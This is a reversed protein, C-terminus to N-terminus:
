VQADFVEALGEFLWHDAATGPPTFPARMSLCELVDVASGALVVAEAPPEGRHIAIESGVEIVAGVTPDTVRLEIAGRGTSGLSARFAPGLAAAYLLCAEMEAPDVAPELALPLVIDREHVWSDWLAHIAVLGISIHGPPAEALEEWAAEEEVATLADALARNTEVFQALTASPPTGQQAAVLEAPSAVPDFGHLYTTPEGALGSQISYTWFHNTSTLHLVVDRVSWGACRSGASWQDDDLGALTAALRSRQGTVIAALGHIMPDIRVLPDVGYRPSIKM